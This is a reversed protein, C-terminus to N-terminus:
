HLYFIICFAGKPAKQMTKIQMLWEIIIQIKKTESLLTSDYM